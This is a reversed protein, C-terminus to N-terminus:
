VGPRLHAIWRLCKVEKNRKINLYILTKWIILKKTICYKNHAMLTRAKTCNNYYSHCYYCILLAPQEWPLSHKQTVGLRCDGIKSKPKHRTRLSYNIFCVTRRVRLQKCINWINNYSLRDTTAWFLLPGFPWYMIDNLDFVIKFPICALLSINSSFTSHLILEFM